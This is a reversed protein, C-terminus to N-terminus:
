KLIYVDFLMTSGTSTTNKKRGKYTIEVATKEPLNKVADVLVTQGSLFFENRSLFVGCIISEGDSNPISQLGMYYLKVPNGEIKEWDEAKKYDIIASFSKEMNDLADLSELTPLTFTLQGGAVKAFEDQQKM